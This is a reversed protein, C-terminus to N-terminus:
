KRRRRWSSMLSGFLHYRRRVGDVWVRDAGFALHHLGDRYPPQPELRAVPAEDYASPSLRAVQHIVVAHGYRQLGDQAPRFLDGHRRFFPGAPRSSGTDTKLPNLRHPRFEESLDEAYWAYLWNWPAPTSYFLWWLGEHEVLTPDVARVGRLLDRVPVLRRGELRYLTICGSALSEPLCYLGDPLHLPFPYSRHQASELLPERDGTAPDLWSLRGGPRRGYRHEEVWLERGVPFPDALSSRQAPLWTVRADLRECWGIGWEDYGFLEEGLFRLARLLQRPWPPPPVPVNAALPLGPGLLARRLLEPAAKWAMARDRAWSWGPRFRGGALLRSGCWWGASGDGVRYRWAEPPGERALALDFDAPEGPQALDAVEELWPPPSGWLRFRKM